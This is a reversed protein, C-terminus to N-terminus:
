GGIVILDLIEELRQKGIGEVNLLEEATRFYGNQKRYAVIRKALVEGIGPLAMLEEKGARNIPIPFVIKSESATNSAKTTETPMTTMERSVSVIIENQITNRGFFFGVTFAAFLIMLVVSLSIGPKRLTM